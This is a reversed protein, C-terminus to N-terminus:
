EETMVHPCKTCHFQGQAAHEECWTHGGACPKNPHWVNGQRREQDRYANYGARAIVWIVAIAGTFFGLIFLLVEM